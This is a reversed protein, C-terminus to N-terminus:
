GVSARWGNADVRAPDPARAAVLVDVSAAGAALVARACAGLTAGTTMVDDILVIRRGALRDRRSPRAAIAGRVIEQRAGAGLRALAPTKRVRVLADPLVPLHAIRGIAAALLGAQNYRRRFLRGRHLPVPVLLDAEGLLDRGARVMHRALLPALDTRDAYKLRLILPRSWEDYSLAARGSRWPPPTDLCPACVRGAGGPASAAFPQGCRACCPDAIFRMSSFCDPCLLGARDVPQHCAPCDPPLLLDLVRGAM